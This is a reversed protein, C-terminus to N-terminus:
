QRVKNTTDPSDSLYIKSQDDGSIELVRGYKEPLGLKDVNEWKGKGYVAVEEGQELIGEKYRITKNFGLFNESEYGKSNLFKELQETADKFFGSSYNRDKVIHNKLHGIGVHACDMGDRIVYETSNNESIITSWHSNKGSSKKQEVTIDYFACKRGSLPAVLPEGVIEVKGVIKAVDGDRFHTIRKHEAKKLKRKIIAKQSFYYNGVLILAVAVGIVIFIYLEDM